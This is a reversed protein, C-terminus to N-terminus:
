AVSFSAHCPLLAVYSTHGPLMRKAEMFWACDYVCGSAMGALQWGAGRGHRNLSALVRRALMCCVKELDVAGDPLSLFIICVVILGTSHGAGWRVGTSFARWTSHLAAAVLARM